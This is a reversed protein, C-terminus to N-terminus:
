CSHRRGRSSHHLRGYSSTGNDRYVTLVRRTSNSGGVIFEIAPCFLGGFLALVYVANPGCGEPHMHSSGRWRAHQCSGEVSHMGLQSGVLVAMVKQRRCVWRCCLPLALLVVAVAGYVDCLFVNGSSAASAERWALVLVLFRCLGDARELLSPSLLMRGRHYPAISNSRDGRAIHGICTCLSRRVANENSIASTFGM